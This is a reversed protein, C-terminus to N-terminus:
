LQRGIFREKGLLFGVARKVNRNLAEQTKLNFLTRNIEKKLSPALDDYVKRAEPKNRLEDKLRPHIPVSRDSPDFELTFEAVDGIDKGAAKRMPTNLYLRWHGSYRVLTQPFKHGDITMTVPISGKEKGAQQFVKELIHDPVFVFPNIAIIEITATFTDM